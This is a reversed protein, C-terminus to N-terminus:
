RHAYKQLLIQEAIAQINHTPTIMLQTRHALALAGSTIQIAKIPFDIETLLLPPDVCNYLKSKTEVPTFLSNLSGVTESTGLM